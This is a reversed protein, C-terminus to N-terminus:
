REMKRNHSDIEQELSRLEGWFERKRQYERRKIRFGLWILLGFTVGAYLGFFASFKLGDTLTLGKDSTHIFLGFMAAAMVFWGGGIFCCAEKFLKMSTETHLAASYGKLM